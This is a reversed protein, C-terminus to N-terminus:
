GLPRGGPGSTDAPSPRFPPDSSGRSRLDAPLRRCRHTTPRSSGGVRPDPTGARLALRPGHGDLSERLLSALREMEAARGILPAELASVVRRATPEGARAHARTPATEPPTPRLRLIEQYLEKTEPEPELGLERQLVGVCHQYQRLATGRRGQEAYLRMLTRHVAEQLPDLSLLKLATQVAAEEARAERQHALLKALGESALERLRERETVLWEEFPPEDVAFGALLDSQYLGAASALAELTGEAVLREFAAVDVDVVSRNLALTEGEVLLAPPKTKGLAKRTAFLTQRLSARASEERIGSWLLTALKDRPHARGLPIALYALLAQAKKTPLALPSGSELRAQFGGLLALSLRAM